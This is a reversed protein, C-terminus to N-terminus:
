AGSALAQSEDFSRTLVSDRAGHERALVLAAGPRLQQGASKERRPEPFVTVDWSLGIRESLFGTVGGGVDMAPLTSSVPLVGFGTTSARM